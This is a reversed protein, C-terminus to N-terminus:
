QRSVAYQLYICSNIRYMTIFATNFCSEKNEDKCTRSGACDRPLSDGHQCLTIATSTSLFLKVLELEVNIYGM